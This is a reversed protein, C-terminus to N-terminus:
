ATARGPCPVPILCESRGDRSQAWFQLAQGGCGRCCQSIAERLAQAEEDDDALNPYQRWDCPKHASATTTVRPSANIPTVRIWWGAPAIAALAAPFPSRACRCLPHRPSVPRNSSGFPGIQPASTHSEM